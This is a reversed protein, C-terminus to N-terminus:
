SIFDKIRSIVASLSQDEKYSNISFLYVAQNKSIQFFNEVADWGFLNKFIPDSATLHLEQDQFWADRAAWGIACAKTGCEWEGLDFQDEPINELVRLLNEFAEPNM